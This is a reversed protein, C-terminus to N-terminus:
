KSRNINEQEYNKVECRNSTIRDYMSEYFQAVTPCYASWSYYASMTNRFNEDAKNFAEENPDTFMIVLENVLVEELKNVGKRFNLLTMEEHSIVEETSM